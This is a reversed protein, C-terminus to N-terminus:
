ASLYPLVEKIDEEFEKLMEEAREKSSVACNFLFNITNKYCYDTKITKVHIILGNKVQKHNDYDVVFGDVENHFRTWNRMMMILNYIKAEREALEKSQFTSSSRLIGFASSSVGLGSYKRTLYYQTDRSEISGRSWVKKEKKFIGISNLLEWQASTAKEEALRYYSADIIVEDDDSKLLNDRLINQLQTKFEGCTDKDIISILQKRTTKM